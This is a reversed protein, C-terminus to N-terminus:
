TERTSWATFDNSSTHIYSGINIYFNIDDRFTFVFLLLITNNPNKKEKQLMFEGKEGHHDGM